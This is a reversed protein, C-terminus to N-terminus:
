QCKHFRVSLVRKLSGRGRGFAYELINITKLTMIINNVAVHMM